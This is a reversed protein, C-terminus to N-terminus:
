YPYQTTLRSYKVHKYFFSVQQRKPLYSYHCVYIENLRVQLFLGNPAMIRMRDKGTNRVLRFTESKGPSTATAVGLRRESRGRVPQWVGEFQVDDRQDAM